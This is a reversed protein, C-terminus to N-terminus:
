TKFFGISRDLAEIDRDTIGGKKNKLVAITGKAQNIQGRVTNIMANVEDALEQLQDSNRIHVEKSFDGENLRKMVKTFHYLPGAIKHSFLLTVAITALGVLVM